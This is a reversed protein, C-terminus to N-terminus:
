SAKKTRNGKVLRIQQARDAQLQRCRHCRVFNFVKNKGCGLCLNNQRRHETQVRNRKAAPTEVQLNIGKFSIGYTRIYLWAEERTMKRTRVLKTVAARM